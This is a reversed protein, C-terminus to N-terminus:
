LVVAKLLRTEGEMAHAGSISSLNDPKTATPQAVEGVQFAQMREWVTVQEQSVSM